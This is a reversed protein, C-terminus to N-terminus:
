SILAPNTWGLNIELLRNVNEMEGAKLDRGLSSRMLETLLGHADGYSSDTMAQGALRELMAIQDPTARSLLVQWLAKIPPVPSPYEHVLMSLAAVKPGTAPPFSLWLPLAVRDEWTLERMANQLAAEDGGNALEEIRAMNPTLMGPTGALSERTWYVAEFVQAPPTQEQSKKSFWRM